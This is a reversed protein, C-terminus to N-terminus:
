INKGCSACFKSDAPVSAGCNPCFASGTATTSAPAVPNTSNTKKNGFIIDNMPDKGIFKSNGFALICVFIPNLLVLGVTFGVSKGFARALSRNVLISYYLSAVSFALGGLFPIINLISGFTIIILWKQDVGVAEMLLYDKVMPILSKWGEMGMKKFLKYNAVLAVVAFIGMIIFLFAFAAIFGGVVSGLDSVSSTTTGVKTVTYLVDLGM